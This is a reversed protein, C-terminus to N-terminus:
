PKLFVACFSSTKIKYKKKRFPTDSSPFFFHMQVIFCGREYRKYHIIDRITTGANARSLIHCQQPCVGSNHFVTPLPLSTKGTGQTSCDSAPHVCKIETSFRLQNARRVPPTHQILGMVAAMGLNLHSRTPESHPCTKQTYRPQACMDMSQM